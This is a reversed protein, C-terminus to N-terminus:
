FHPILQAVAFYSFVAHSLIVQPLRGTVGAVFSWVLGCGLAAMPLLPNPGAAPDGLAFAAPVHALAYLLAAVPWGARSGLRESLARLVLGRWVLEELVALVAVLALIAPSPRAGGLVLGLRFLWALKVSMGSFLFRRVLWAAGFLAGGLLIGLTADGSRPRLTDWLVGDDHLRHLALAGFVLYPIGLCWLFTSTGVVAERFAFAVAATVVTVALVALKM